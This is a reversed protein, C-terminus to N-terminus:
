KAEETGGSIEVKDGTIRVTIPVTAICYHCALQRANEEKTFVESPGCSYVNVWQKFEITEPDQTLDLIGSRHRGSLDWAHPGYESGNDGLVYGVLKFEGAGENSILRVCDGGVQTKVNRKGSRAAEYDIIM